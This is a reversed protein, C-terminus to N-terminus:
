RTRNSAKCTTRFVVMSRARTTIAFTMSSLRSTSIIRETGRTWFSRFQRQRVHTAATSDLTAMSPLETPVASSLQGLISRTAWSYTPLFVASPLYPLPVSGVLGLGVHFMSSSLSTTGQFVATRRWTQFEYELDRPDHDSDRHQIHECYDYAEEFIEGGQMAKMAKIDKWDQDEEHTPDNEPRFDERLWVHFDQITDFPGFRPRAHPIRSDMLSGGACSQVGTGTPPQLARLEGLISWLQSLITKLDAESLSTWASALSHGKIREMVIHAVNNHVFACHVRPVPVSTKSAIYNLTAAETM